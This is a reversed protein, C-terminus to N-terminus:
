CAKFQIMQIFSYINNVLNNKHASKNGTYNVKKNQFMTQETTCFLLHLTMYIRKSTTYTCILSTCFVSRYSYYQVSCMTFM